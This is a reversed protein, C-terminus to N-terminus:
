VHVRRQEYRQEEQHQKEKKRKRYDTNRITEKGHCNARRLRHEWGATIMAASLYFDLTM